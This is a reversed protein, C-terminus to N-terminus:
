FQVSHGPRSMREAIEQLVSAAPSPVSTDNQYSPMYWSVSEPPEFSTSLCPQYTSPHLACVCPHCLPDGTPFYAPVSCVSPSLSISKPAQVYLVLCQSRIGEATHSHTPRVKLHHCIRFCLLIVPYSENTSTLVNMHSQCSPHEM